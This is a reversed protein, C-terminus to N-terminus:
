QLEQQEQQQIDRWFLHSQEIMARLQEENAGQLGHIQNGRFEVHFTPVASVRKKAATGQCESIDVKAFVFLDRTEDDKSSLECLKQFTPFIRKCPPCFSGSYDTVLIKETQACHEAVEEYHEDSTISLVKGPVISNAM